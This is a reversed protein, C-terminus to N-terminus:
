EVKVEVFRFGRWNLDTALQAFRESVLIPNLCQRIRFVHVDPQLSRSDVPVPDFGSGGRYCVDCWPVQASAAANVVAPAYLEVYPVPEVKRKYSCKVPYADVRIEASRLVELLDQRLVSVGVNVMTLEVTKYVDCHVPGFSLAPPLPTSPPSLREFATQLAIFEDWTRIHPKRYARWVRREAATFDRNVDIWPLRMGGPGGVKGCVPCRHTELDHKPMGDITLTPDSTDIAFVRM